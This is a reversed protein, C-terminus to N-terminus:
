NVLCYAAQQDAEVCVSKKCFLSACETPAACSEGTAKRETCRGAIGPADVVCYLGETCNNDTVCVGGAASRPECTWTDLVNAYVCAHTEPQACAVLAAGVLVPDLTAAPTCSAKREVTGRLIGRLGESSGGWEAVSTDCRSARDELETFAKEAAAADFGSSEQMAIKDLMLTSSCTNILDTMCAAVTRNPSDCCFAEGACNITALRECLQAASVKNRNPEGGADFETAREVQPM